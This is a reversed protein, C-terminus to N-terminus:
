LTEVSLKKELKTYTDKTIYIERGNTFHIYYISEQPEEKVLNGNEDFLKKSEIEKESVGDINEVVILTDVENGNRNLRKLKLM